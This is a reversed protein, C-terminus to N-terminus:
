NINLSENKQKELNILYAQLREYKSKQAQTLDVGSSLRMEYFTMAIETLKIDTEVRDSNYIDM